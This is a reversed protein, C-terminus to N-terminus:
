HKLELTIDRELTVDLMGGEQLDGPAHQLM